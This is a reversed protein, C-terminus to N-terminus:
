KRNTTAIIFALVDVAKRGDFCDRYELSDKYETSLAIQQEFAEAVRSLLAAYVVPKRTSTVAHPLNVAPFTPVASLMVATRSSDMHQEAAMKPGNSVRSPVALSSDSDNPSHKPAYPDWGRRYPDLGDMPLQGANDGTRFLPAAKSVFPQPSILYSSSDPTSCMLSPQVQLPQRPTQSGLGYLQPASGAFRGTSVYLQPGQSYAPSLRGATM